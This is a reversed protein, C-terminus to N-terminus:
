QETKTQRGFQIQDRLELVKDVAYKSEKISKNSSEEVKDLRENIKELETKIDLNDNDNKCKM